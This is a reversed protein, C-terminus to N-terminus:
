TEDYSYSITEQTWNGPGADSDVVLQFVTFRTTDNTNTYPGVDWQVKNGSTYTTMDTNAVTSATAFPTAYTIYNTTFNLTTSTDVTGDMWIQFNDVNNAPATDVDSRADGCRETGRKADVFDRRFPRPDRVM